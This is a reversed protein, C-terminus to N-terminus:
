GHVHVGDVAGGAPHGGVRGGEGVPVAAPGADDDADVGVRGVGTEDRLPGPVVPLFQVRGRGAAGVDVEQHVLALVPAFRGVPAVVVPEGSRFLTTYPFLTSRPPRRIM